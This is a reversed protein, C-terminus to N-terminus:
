VEVWVPPAALRDGQGRLEAERDAIQEFSLM